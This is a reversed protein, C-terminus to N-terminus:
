AFGHRGGTCCILRSERIVASRGHINVSKRGEQLVSRPASGVPLKPLGFTPRLASKAMKGQCKSARRRETARSRMGMTPTVGGASSSGPVIKGNSLFLESSLVRVLWGFDPWTTPRLYRARRCHGRTGRCARDVGRRATGAPQFLDLVTGRPDLARLGVRRFRSDNQTQYNRRRSWSWMM